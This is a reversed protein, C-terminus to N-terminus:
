YQRSTDSEYSQESQMLVTSGEYTAPVYSSDPRSLMPVKGWSLVDVNSNSVTRCCRTKSILLSHSPYGLVKGLCSGEDKYKSGNNRGGPWLTSFYSSNSAPFILDIGM